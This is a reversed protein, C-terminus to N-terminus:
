KKGLIKQPGGLRRHARPGPENFRRFRLPPELGFYKPAQGMGKGGKKGVRV